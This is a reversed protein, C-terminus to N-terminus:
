GGCGNALVKEISVLLDVDNIPFGFPNAVPLVGDARAEMLTAFNDALVKEPHIIFNSNRTM